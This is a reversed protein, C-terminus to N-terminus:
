PRAAILTAASPLLTEAILGHQPPSRRISYGDSSLKFSLLDMDFRMELVALSRLVQEALCHVIFTRYWAHNVVHRDLKTKDIRQQLVQAM